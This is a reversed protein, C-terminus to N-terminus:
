IRVRGGVLWTLGCPRELGGNGGKHFLTIMDAKGYHHPGSSFPSPFTKNELSQLPNSLM